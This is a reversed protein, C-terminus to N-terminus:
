AKMQRAESTGPYSPLKNSSNWQIARLYDAFDQVKGGKSRNDLLWQLYETTAKETEESLERYTLKRDKVKPLTCVTKGWMEVSCIGEPLKIVPASTQPTAKGGKSEVTVYGAGKPGHEVVEYASLEDSPKVRKSADSMSGSAMPAEEEALIAPNLIRIHGESALHHLVPRIEGFKPIQVKPFSAMVVLERTSRLFHAVSCM